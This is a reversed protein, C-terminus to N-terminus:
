GYSIIAMTSIVGMSLCVGFVFVAASVKNESIKVFVLLLLISFVTYSFYFYALVWDQTTRLGLKSFLGFGRPNVAANKYMEDYTQEEGDLIDIESKAELIYGSLDSIQQNFDSSYLTSRQTSTHTLFSNILDANSPPPRSGNDSQITCSDGNECLGDICESEDACSSM